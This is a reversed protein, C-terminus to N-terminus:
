RGCGAYHGGSYRPWDRAHGSRVMECAPDVGAPTACRVVPRNYRDIHITDCTLPQGDTIRDLMRRAAQGGPRQREPADIGWLRLDRGDHRLTDGDVITYGTLTLATAIITLM